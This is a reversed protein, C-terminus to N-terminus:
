QTEDLHDRSDTIGCRQLGKSCHTPPSSRNCHAAYVLPNYACQPDAQSQGDVIATIDSLLSPLHQESRKRGRSTYADICVIGHELEHLGKRITGRNWGLEREALRQGGEGLARVTRALFLRRASGKLSKGTEVLLEKVEEVLEM